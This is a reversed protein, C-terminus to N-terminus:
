EAYQASFNYIKQNSVCQGQGGIQLMVNDYDTENYKPNARIDMIYNTRPVTVNLPNSTAEYAYIPQLMADNELNNTLVIATWGGQNAECTLSYEMDVSVTLYDNANFGSYLWGCGDNELATKYDALINIYGDGQTREIYYDTWGESFGVYPSENGLFQGDKVIYWALKKVISSESTGDTYNVDYKAYEASLPYQCKTTGIATGLNTQSNKDGYYCTISEVTKNNGTHADLVVNNGDLVKNNLIPKTFTAESNVVIRGNWIKGQVNPTDVTVDYDIWLRLDYTVKEGAALYGRTLNMGNKADESLGNTANSSYHKVSSANFYVDLNTEDLTSTNLTELLVSYSSAVSCQNTITFKYPPLIKGIYDQIPYMKDLNINGAGSINEDNFVINFCGVDITNTSEQHVSTTWLSYTTGISVSIVIVLAVIISVIAIKKQM